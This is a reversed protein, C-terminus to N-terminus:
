TSFVNGTKLFTIEKDTSKRGLIANRVPFRKFQKLIGLQSEAIKIGQQYFPNNGTRDNLDKHLEVYKELLSIDEFRSLVLYVFICMHPPMNRDERTKLLNQVIQLAKEDGSFMKPTDRYINRTFQDLLIILAMTGRQTKLWDDCGGSIAKELTPRFAATIFQDVVASRTFWFSSHVGTIQTDEDINQFWYELIQTVIPDENEDPVQKSKPVKTYSTGTGWWSRAAINIKEVWDKADEESEARFKYVRFDDIGPISVNFTFLKGFTVTPAAAHSMLDIFGTFTLLRPDYFSSKNEMGGATIIRV